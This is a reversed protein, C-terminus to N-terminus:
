VNSATPTLNAFNKLAHTESHFTEYFKKFIKQLGNSRKKTFMKVIKRKLAFFAGVKLFRKKELGGNRFRKSVSLLNMINIKETLESILPDINFFFM